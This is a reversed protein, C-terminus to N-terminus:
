ELEEGLEKELRDMFIFDVAEDVTPIGIIGYSDLLEVTNSNVAAAVLMIHESELESNFDSLAILFNEPYDMVNDFDIILYSFSRDFNEKMQGVLAEDCHGNQIVALSYNEEEKFQISM